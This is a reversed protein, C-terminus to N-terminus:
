PQGTSQDGDREEFHLGYISPYHRGLTTTVHGSSSTKHPPEIHLVPVRDGRFSTVTGGKNVPKKTKDDVLVYTTM